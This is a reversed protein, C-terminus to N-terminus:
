KKLLVEAYLEGETNKELTYEIEGKLSKGDLEPFKAEIEAACLNKNGAKGGNRINSLLIEMSDFKKKHAANATEIQKNLATKALEVKAACGIEGKDRLGKLLLREVWEQRAAHVCNYSPYDNGEEVPCNSSAYAEVEEFSVDKWYQLGAYARPDDVNYQLLKLAEDFAESQDDCTSARLNEYKSTLADIEPSTPIQVQGVMKFNDGWNDLTIETVLDKADSSDCATPDGCGVLSLFVMFLAMTKSENKM